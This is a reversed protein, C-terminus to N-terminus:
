KKKKVVIGPKDEPPIIELNCHDLLLDIVDSLKMTHSSTYTSGDEKDVCLYKVNIRVRDSHLDRSVKNELIKVRNGITDDKSKASNLLRSFPTDGDYKDKVIIENELAAVRDWITKPFLSRIFKKM